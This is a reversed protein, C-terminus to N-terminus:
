IGSVFYTGLSCPTAAIRNNRNITSIDNSIIIIIIIIIFRSCPDVAQGMFTPGIPQGSVDILVQWEVSGLVEFARIKVVGSNM